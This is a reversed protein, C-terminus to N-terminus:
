GASREVTVGAVILHDRHREVLTGILIKNDM